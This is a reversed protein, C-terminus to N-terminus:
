QAMMKYGTPVKFVDAPPAGALSKLNMVQKGAASDTTSQVTIHCDDGIWVQTKVGSASYEYGHCPHGNVVKAGIQKGGASKVSSEDAVMGGSPPLKTKMAMKGQEILTTSTGELYNLLSTSKFGHAVSETMFHGAGDSAMRMDTKGQPSSIEYKADFKQTPYNGAVANPALMSILGLALCLHRNM